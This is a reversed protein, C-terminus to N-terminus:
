YFVTLRLEQVKLSDDLYFGKVSVKQGKLNLHKSNVFIKRGEFEILGANSPFNQLFDKEIEEKSFNREKVWVKILDHEKQVLVLEDTGAESRHVPFAIIGILLIFSLLVELSFYAAKENM